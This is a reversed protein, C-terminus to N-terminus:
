WWSVLVILNAQIGCVQRRATSIAEPKIWNIDEQVNSTFETESKTNRSLWRRFKEMLFSM